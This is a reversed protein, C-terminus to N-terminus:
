TLQIAPCNGSRPFDVGIHMGMLSLYGLRVM